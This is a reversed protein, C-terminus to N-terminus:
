RIWFYQIDEESIQATTGPFSVQLYTNAYDALKAFYKYAKGDHYFDEENMFEFSIANEIAEKRDRLTPTM